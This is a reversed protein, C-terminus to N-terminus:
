SVYASAYRRANEIMAGTYRCGKWTLAEQVAPHALVLCAGLGHELEVLESRQLDAALSSIAGSEEEDSSAFDRRVKGLFRDLAQRDGMDRYSRLHILRRRLAQTDEDTMM